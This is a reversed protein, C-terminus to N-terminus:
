TLDIVVKSEVNPKVKKTVEEKVEAPRLRERKLVAPSGSASPPLPIKRIQLGFEDTYNFLSAHLLPGLGFPTKKISLPKTVLQDGTEARMCNTEKHHGFPASSAHAIGTGAALKVDSLDTTYDNSGTDDDRCSYWLVKFSGCEVTSATFEEADAKKKSTIKIAKDCFSAADFVGLSAKQMPRVLTQLPMCQGDVVLHCVVTVESHNKCVLYVEADESLCAWQSGIADTTLAHPKKSHADVITALYKQDM